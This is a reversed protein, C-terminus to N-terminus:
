LRARAGGKRESDHAKAVKHMALQKAATASGSSLPEQRPEPSTAEGAAAEDEESMAITMSATMMKLARTGSIMKLNVRTPGVDQGKIYTIWGEDIDGDLMQWRHGRTPKVRVRKTGDALEAMGHISVVSGAGLRGSRASTKESGERVIAARLVEAIVVPTSADAREEDIAGLQSPPTKKGTLAGWIGVAVGSTELTPRARPPTSRPEDDRKSHSGDRHSM